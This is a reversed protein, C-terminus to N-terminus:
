KALEQAAFKLAGVMGKSVADKEALPVHVSLAGEIEEISHFRMVSNIPTIPGPRSVRLVCDGRENDVTVVVHDGFGKGYEAPNGHINSM